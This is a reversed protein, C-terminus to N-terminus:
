NQGHQGRENLYEQFVKILNKNRDLLSFKFERFYQYINYGNEELIDAFYFSMERESNFYEIVKFYLEELERIQKSKEIKPSRFYLCGDIKKFRHAKNHKKDYEYKSYLNRKEERTPLNRVLIYDTDNM